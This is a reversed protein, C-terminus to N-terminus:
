AGVDDDEPDTLNILTSAPDVWPFTTNLLANMDLTPQTAAQAAAAQCAEDEADRELMELYEGHRREEALRRRRWHELYAAEQASTAAVWVPPTSVWERVVGTWSYREIPSPEPEPDPEAKVPSSPTVLPLVCDGVASLAMAAEYAAEEQEAAAVRHRDYEESEQYVAVLAAQYAAEMAQDEERVALQPPPM